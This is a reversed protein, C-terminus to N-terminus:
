PSQHPALKKHFQRSEVANDLLEMIKLIVITKENRFNLRLIRKKGVYTQAVLKEETLINLNRNVENYTSNVERVLSM